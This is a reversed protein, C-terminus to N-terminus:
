GLASAGPYLDLHRRAGPLQDLGHRGLAVAPRWRRQRRRAVARPQEPGPRCQVRLGPLRASRRGAALAPRELAAAAAHRAGDATAIAGAAWGDDPLSFDLAYIAWAAGSPDDEPPTYTFSTTWGEGDWRLITGGAGAAWGHTEDLFALDYLTGEAPSDVPHWDEGEQRLILGDEGAAWGAGELPISIANLPRTYSVQCLGPNNQEDRCAWLNPAATFLPNTLFTLGALMGEVQSLCTLESGGPYAIFCTPTDAYSTCYTVFALEDAQTAQGIYYAVEGLTQDTYEVTM